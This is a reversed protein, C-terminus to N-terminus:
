PDKFGEKSNKKGTKIALCYSEFDWYGDADKMLDEADDQTMFCNPQKDVRKVLRNYIKQLENEHINDKGIDYM